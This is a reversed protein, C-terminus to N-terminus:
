IIKSLFRQRSDLEYKQSSTIRGSQGLGAKTAQNDLLRVWWGGVETLNEREEQSRSWPWEQYSPPKVSNLLLTEEMGINILSFLM